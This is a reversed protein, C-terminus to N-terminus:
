AATCSPCHTAPKQGNNLRNLATPTIPGPSSKDGCYFCNTKRSRKGPGKRARRYLSRLLSYIGRPSYANEAAYNTGTKKPAYEANHHTKYVTDGSVADEGAPRTTYSPIRM